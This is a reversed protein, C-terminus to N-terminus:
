QLNPFKELIKKIGITNFSMNAVDFKAVIVNGEDAVPLTIIGNRSYKTKMFMQM